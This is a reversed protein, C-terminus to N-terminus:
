ACDFCIMQDADALQARRKVLFCSRCTFENAGIPTTTSTLGDRPEDDLRVLDDDEAKERALLVDLSEDETEHVVEAEDDSDDDAEVDADDEEPEAEDGAVAPVADAGVEEDLDDGAELGDVNDSSDLEDLVLDDDGEEEVLDDETEFEQSAVM